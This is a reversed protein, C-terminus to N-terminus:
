ERGFVRWAGRPAPGAIGRSQYLEFGCASASKTEEGKIGFYERVIRYGDEPTVVACNGSRPQKRAYDEMAKLSGAITKGDSLIAAADSPHKKLHDTLYNGVFQVYTNEPAAAMEDRIKDIARENM